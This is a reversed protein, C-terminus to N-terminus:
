VNIVIFSFLFMLLLLIQFVGLFITERRTLRLQSQIEVQTLLIKSRRNTRKSLSSLYRRLFIRRIWSSTLIRRMMPWNCLTTLQQEWLLESIIKEIDMKIKIKEVDKLHIENLYKQLIAKLKIKDKIQVVFHFLKNETIKDCIFFSGQGDEQIKDFIIKM